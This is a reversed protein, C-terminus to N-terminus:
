WLTPAPAAPKPPSTLRKPLPARDELEPVPIGAHEELWDALMRRHCWEGASVREFCLLVLGRTGHAKEHRDAMQDLGRIVQDVGLKDLQRHYQHEFTRQDTIALIPRSPALEGLTGVIPFALKYRPPRATIRVAGRGTEGIMDHNLFHSTALDPRMPPPFEQQYLPDRIM